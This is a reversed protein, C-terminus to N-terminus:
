AGPPPPPALLYEMGTIDWMLAGLEQFKEGGMLAGMGEMDCDYCCILLKEPAKTDQYLATRSEDCISARTNPIKYTKGRFTLTTGRAHSWFLDSYEKLTVGPKLTFTVCVDAKAGPPASARIKMDTGPNMDWMQSGMKQFVPGGMLAGMGDMDCSNCLIMLGKDKKTDKYVATKSEDCISGRTAPLEFVQSKYKLTTGEGHSWFLDTYEKVTCSPKVTLTCMINAKPKLCSCIAGM